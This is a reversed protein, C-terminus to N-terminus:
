RNVSPRHKHISSRSITKMVVPCTRVHMGRSGTASQHNPIGHATNQAYYACTQKRKAIENKKFIETEHRITDQKNLPLETAGSSAAEPRHFTTSAGVDIVPNSSYFRGNSLGFNIQQIYLQSLAAKM